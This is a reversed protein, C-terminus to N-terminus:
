SLKDIINEVKKNCDIAKTSYYKPIWQYVKVLHYYALCQYPYILKNDLFKIEM